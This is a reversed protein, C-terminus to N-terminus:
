AVEMTLPSKGPAVTTGGLQRCISLLEEARHRCTHGRRITELGHRVLSSALHHDNLVARLCRRMAQGDEAVLYDTGPRFLGEADDWPSCILPIGCALAEFVRITPIGPLSEVYPRRPVHVTVRCGAFIEPVRYNALWGGYALGAGRVAALAPAPYRVGYARANLALAAAPELLFQRLEAAREDDGWNGIWVLDGLYPHGPLPRFVATDAAEHWTWARRTWGQRLYIQRIAEGFALVGDYGDLDFRAMTEPLTQARHHTDHFFLLYRGGALRHRGVRRVLEPDNWEHLLVVDAGDLAQDLDLEALRYFRPSLSPFTTRFGEEASEGYEALLNLRSWGDAPEYVTVQHGLTTLERVMGRLFHANGNNWDSIISHYFCNFRM